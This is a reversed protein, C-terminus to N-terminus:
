KKNKKKNKSSSSSNQPAMINLRAELDPATNKIPIKPFVYGAPACEELYRYCLGINNQVMTRIKRVKEPFYPELGNIMVNLRFKPPMMWFPVGVSLHHFAATYQTMTQGPVPKWSALAIARDTYYRDLDHGMVKLCAELWSCKEDEETLRELFIGKLYMKRLLSVWEHYAIKFALFDKEILMLKEQVDSNPDDIVLAQAVPPYEKPDLRRQPYGCKEASLVMGIWPIDPEGYNYQHSWNPNLQRPAPTIIEGNAEEGGEEQKVKKQKQPAKGDRNLVEKIEENASGLEASFRSIEALLGETGGNSSM